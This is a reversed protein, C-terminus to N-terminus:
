ATPQAAPRHLNFAAGQPDVCMVVRDGGPVDM